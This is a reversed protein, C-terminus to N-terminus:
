RAAMSWMWARRKGSNLTTAGAVALAGSQSIGASTANLNGTLSSTGLTLAASDVLTANSGTLLVAGGFFKGANALTIASTGANLTSTGSVNVAGTQSIGQATASLDDSVFRAGDAVAAM